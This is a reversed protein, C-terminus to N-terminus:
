TGTRIMYGEGRITHIMRPAFDKDIKQRLRSIHVDIVNTQSGKQYDWVAELLMPRTVVEDPHRVMFELMRYECPQLSIPVGGRRVSRHLRDLELNGVKIVNEAVAAAGKRRLVAELRLLLEDPTYPKVLYDDAGARLGKIREEVCGLESVFIAAVDRGADRLTELLKIGDCRPLQRDLIVADYSRNSALALGRAGDLAVDVGYGAERLGDALRNATDADDEVVLIKM